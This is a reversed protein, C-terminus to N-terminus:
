SGRRNSAWSTPWCGGCTRTRRSPRRGGARSGLASILRSHFWENLPYDTILRRLEPISERHLGLRDAAEIRIEYARLRLEELHVIHGSLM